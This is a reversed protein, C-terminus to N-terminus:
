EKSLIAFYKGDGTAVADEIIDEKLFGTSIDNVARWEFERLIGDNGLALIKEQNSSFFVKIIEFDTVVEFDM